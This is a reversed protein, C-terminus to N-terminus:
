DLSVVPLVKGPELQASSRRAENLYDALIASLEAVREAIAAVCAKRIARAVDDSIRSYGTEYRWMMERSRGVLSAVPMKWDPGYAASALRVLEEGSRAARRVTKPPLAPTGAEGCGASVNALSQEGSKDDMQAANTM